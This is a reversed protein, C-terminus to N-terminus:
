SKEEIIKGKSVSVRRWTQNNLWRDAVTKETDILRKLVGNQALLKQPEGIEAIAGDEIVAVRDFQMAESVDHIVCILTIDQWKERAMNMLQQRTPKDLGRFPEDLLALKANPKNLARALRIRQGEGGSLQSGAEGCDTHISDPLGEILPWLEAEDLVEGVHGTHGSGYSINDIISKKFIYVEPDLWSSQQRLAAITQPNLSQQNILVEGQELKAFGLLSGILTSKGAGSPGVVALHTGAPIDLDISSLVPENEVSFHANKFQIHLSKDASFDLKNESKEIPDEASNLPEQLRLIINKVMPVQQMLLFLTEAQTPMQLLWYVFLINLASLSQMNVTYAILAAAFLYTILDQIFSLALTTKRQTNSAKAWRTLSQQQESLVTNEGSHVKVAFLGLLANAYHRTLTGAFTRTVMDKQGILRQAIVPLILCVALFLTLWLAQHPALYILGAFILLLSVLAQIFEITIVPVDEIAAVSHSREILDSLLRSSFYEDKLRPLKEYLAIRFQDELRRSLKQISLQLPVEVVAVVLIILFIVFAIQMRLTGPAILQDFEFLMKFAVAQATITIGVILTSLFVVMPSLTGVTKIFNFVGHWPSASTKSLAQRLQEDEPEQRKTNRTQKLQETPQIKLLIGGKFFVSEQTQEQEDLSDIYWQKPPQCTWFTAPIIDFWQEPQREDLQELLQEFLNNALKGKFKTDQEVLHGIFRLAADVKAGVRWDNEANSMSHDFRQQDIGLTARQQNLFHSRDWSNYCEQWFEVPLHDSYMYLQTQAFKDARIWYRGQGPDIIQLYAGVRRWVVVFHAINQGINVVAIAPYLSDDSLKLQEKPVVVQYADFGIDNLVDELRDISTGNVDTKCADRLYEYNSNIDFSDLICKLSAVGCDMNSTQVVEKAFFRRKSM